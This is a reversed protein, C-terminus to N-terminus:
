RIQAAIWAPTLEDLSAAVADAGADLLEAPTYTHPVAVARLGAARASAIGALSDEIALISAAPLDSLSPVHRRLAAVALRYGEPDPKCRHTDEAAVIACVRDRVGLRALGIEIEARLAGSCVAVPGHDALRTVCAAAGDFLKLGHEAASAYRAAKRAILADVRGFGLPQGAESLAVEFCGRDDYGLYREHYERETIALGEGALVDRLLEFHLHEDDVLVGNFDFVVARIM